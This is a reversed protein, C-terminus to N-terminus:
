HSSRSSYLSQDSFFSVSATRYDVIVIKATVQLSSTKEHLTICLWHSWSITKPYAVKRFPEVTATISADEGRIDIIRMHFSRSSIVSYMTAKLSGRHSCECEFHYVWYESEGINRSGRTSYFLAGAERSDWGGATTAIETTCKPSTSADWSSSIESGQVDRDGTATTQM